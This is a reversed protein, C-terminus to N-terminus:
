DEEEVDVGDSVGDESDTTCWEDEDDSCAGAGSNPFSDEEDDYYPCLHEHGAWLDEFDQRTYLSTYRAKRPAGARRRFESIDHDCVALAFDWVDGRVSGNYPRNSEANYAVDSVSWGSYDEAYVDADHKILLIIAASYRHIWKSPDSDSSEDYWHLRGCDARLRFPHYYLSSLCHHLCIKGDVDRHTVDAKRQLLVAISEASWRGSLCVMLLPSFEMNGWELKTNANVFGAGFDLM